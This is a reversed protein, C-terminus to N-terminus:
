VRRVGDPRAGSACKRLYVTVTRTTMETALDGVARRRATEWYRIRAIITPVHETVPVGSPPVPFTLLGNNENM